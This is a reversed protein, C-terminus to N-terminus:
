DFRSGHPSAHRIRDAKLEAALTEDAAIRAARCDIAEQKLKAAEDADVLGTSVLADVFGPAWDAPRRHSLLRFDRLARATVRDQYRYVAEWDSRTTTIPQASM